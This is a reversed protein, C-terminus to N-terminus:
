QVHVLWEFHRDSHRMIYTTVNLRRNEFTKHEMYSYTPSLVYVHVMCNLLEAAAHGFLPLKPPRDCMVAAEPLVNRPLERKSISVFLLWGSYALRM